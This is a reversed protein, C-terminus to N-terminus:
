DLIRAIRQRLIRRKLFITLSLISFLLIGGLGILGLLIIISWFHWGLIQLYPFFVALLTLLLICLLAGIKHKGQWSLQAPAPHVHRLKAYAHWGIMKDLLRLQIGAGILWLTIVHGTWLGCLLRWRPGLDLLHIGGVMATLIMAIHLMTVSWSPLGRRYTRTLILWSLTFFAGVYLGLCRQCVPLAAGDIVFCRNRGCIYSFIETLFEM